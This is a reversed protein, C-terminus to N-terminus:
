FASQYKFGKNSNVHAQYQNVIRTVRRRATTFLDHLVRRSPFIDGRSTKLGVYIRDLRGEKGCM